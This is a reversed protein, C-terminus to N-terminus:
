VSGLLLIGIVAASIIIIIDLTRIDFVMKGVIGGIILCGIFALILVNHDSTVGAWPDFVYEQVTVEVPELLLANYYWLGDFGIIKDYGTELNTIYFTFRQDYSLSGDSLFEVKVYTDYYTIEFNTLTMTRTVTSGVDYINMGDQIRYPITIKGENVAFLYRPVDGDMFGTIYMTDGYLAVSRVAVIPDRMNPWYDAINLSPDMLITNYTNLFTWTNVVQMNGSYENAVHGVTFIANTGKTPLGCITVTEYTTYSTFNIGENWTCGTFTVEKEMLDITIIFAMWAGMNRMDALTTRQGGQSIKVTINNHLYTGSTELYIYDGTIDFIEKGTEESKTLTDNDLFFYASNFTTADKPNSYLISIKQNWYGNNWYTMAPGWYEYAATFITNETITGHATTMWTQFTYLDVEPAIIEQGDSFILTDNEITYRTGSQVTISPITVVSNNPTTKFTITYMIPDFSATFVVLGDILVYNGNPTWSRFKYDVNATAVCTAVATNGDMISVTDGSVAYHMGLTAAYSTRTITGNGDTQFFVRVTNNSFNLNFIKDDIITGNPQTMYFWASVYGSDPTLTVLHGDSFTISNESLYWTTGYAVTFEVYGEGTIPEGEYTVEYTGNQGSQMVIINMAQAELIATIITNATIRTSDQPTGTILWESIQFGTELVLTSSGVGSVTVVNNEISFPTGAPVNEFMDINFTGGAEPNTRFTVTYNNGDDIAMFTMTGMVAVGTGAPEWRYVGNPSTFRVTKNNSFTVTGYSNDAAVSTTYTTGVPIPLYEITNGNYTFSGGGSLSEFYVAPPWVAYLTKEHNDYTLTIEAGAQYQGATATSSEAWGLFEFDTKTPPINPITFKWSLKTSTHTETGPGGTGTNPDYNMVYTVDDVIIFTYTSVSLDTGDTQTVTMTVTQAPSGTLTGSMIDHSPTNVSLGHGSTVDTVSSYIDGDDEYPIYIHTGAKVYYTGNFYRDVANAPININTYPDEETGSGVITIDYSYQATLTVTPSTNQLTVTDGIAYYRNNAIDYWNVFTNNDKEPIINPIKFGYTLNTMPESTQTNPIPSGGNGNYSLTYTVDDLITFTYDSYGIDTGDTVATRVTFTQMIAGNVTGVVDDNSISIGVNNPTVSYAFYYIEGDDYSKFNITAGNKIYTTASMYQSIDDILIDMATYPDADTGSGTVTGDYTYNAIMTRAAKIPSTGNASWSSFEFSGVTLPATVTQASQGTGFTIVNNNFSYATGWLVSVSQITTLGMPNTVFSVTFNIPDVTITVACDVPLATTGTATARVTFAYTGPTTPEGTLQFSCDGYYTNGSRYKNSTDSFAMGTPVNGSYLATSYTYGSMDQSSSDRVILFVTGLTDLMDMTASATLNTTVRTCDSSVTITVTCDVTNPSVATATARVVFTYTGATDANGTLRFQADGYYTSGSRYKSSADVFAMGSPVTGSVVATSYTYSNMSNISKDRVILFTESSSDGVALTRSYTTTTSVRTNDMVFNATITEAGDVTGSSPNWNDFHYGSSATATVTKIISGGHSFQLTNSSQNWTTGYPVDFNDYNVSGGTSVNITVNYQNITWHAWLTQDATITVETSAQIRTGQGDAQATYWGQFVYETRTATPLEGYTQGYTVTKSATPTSGGNADFTVTYTNANYKAIITIDSTITGSTDGGLTSWENFTYGTVAPATVSSYGNSFSLTTGSTSWTTGTVVTPGTLTAIGYPSTILTVTYTASAIFKATITIDSQVTDGVTAVGGMTWEDFEYGFSATATVLTSNYSFRLQNDHTPVWFTTGYPVSLSSIASGGSTISGTSTPSVLFTVTCMVIDWHAYLTQDATISVTTSSTVQTGASQETFWGLFSHGAYTPTPLTGYTAGYTVTKSATPTTGGNADFTVTYTKITWHAWLTQNASLNVTTSSTIQTGGTQATFWGDFNYGTYTPTPLTGYTEGNVVEKSATPTTGGNANFTVTYKAAWVAYLTINGDDAVWSISINDGPAYRATSASYQTDWGKFKYGSKTPSISSITFTHATSTDYASQTTPAGTGSMANYYLYYKGVTTFTVDDLRYVDDGPVEEFSIMQITVGPNASLTGTVDGGSYSLGYGTTLYGIYTFSGGLDYGVVTVSCGNAVYKGSLITIQDTAISINTYPDVLTGSGTYTPTFWIAYLTRSAYTSQLTVTDTSLYTARTDSSNFSWGLFRKGSYTPVTDSVDFTYSTQTSSATQSSPAGSGGNANYSLSYSYTQANITFTVTCDVTTPSIAGATARITVSYTGTSGTPTGSISFSADGYYYSGSRYTNSTNAFSLGAPLSGSYVATSYTYSSLSSIGRDRVVLFSETYSTGIDVSKSFSTNTTQRVLNKEWVAYLTRTGYSFSYTSGASYSASGEGPTYQTTSWGKFTYGTYSPTTSSLTINKNAGNSSTGGDTQSPAGTGGNANYNIKYYYTYYYTTSETWHAYMTMNSSPSYSSGSTGYYSGGSTSSYWGAFTYTTVTYYTYTNYDGQTSSTSSAKTANPLTITTGSLSSSTPTGGNGNFTVTYGTSRTALSITTNQSITFSGSTVVGSGGTYSWGYAEYGSQGSGTVTGYGSITLSAGNITCTTGGPVTMSQSTSGGYTISGHTGRNFQITYTTAQQWVAYLTIAGDDATWSVTISDGPNYRVTSASYQTDWGMFTYGSRTPTTSSITFTYSSASSTATQATPAGSGQGANYSLRYTHSGPQVAYIMGTDLTGGRDIVVIIDGATSITGTLKGNSVSLGYGSRVDNIKYTTGGVTTKTITVSGGVEVYIPSDNNYFQAATASYSSLPNSETGSDAAVDNEENPLVVLCAGLVAAISLLVALIMVKKKM